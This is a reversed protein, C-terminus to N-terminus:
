PPTMQYREIETRMKILAARRIQGIRSRSVKFDAAVDALVEENYYSKEIIQRERENLCSFAHAVAEPTVRDSFEEPYEIEYETTDESPIFELMHSGDAACRIDYTCCQTTDSMQLCFSLREPTEDILGSLEELTPVRGQVSTFEAAKTQANIVVEQVNIPLKITRGSLHIARVISQRVWWYVYTSVAYGRTPDYLELGRILGINGEQILDLLDLGRHQYKTAVSIVLRLNTLVMVKMAREGARKIHKPCRDKGDAHTVWAKIRYCHQLQAEQSLVPWRGVENLYDRVESKTM